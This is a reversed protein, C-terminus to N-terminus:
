SQRASADRRQRTDLEARISKVAQVADCYPVWMDMVVLEVKDRSPLLFLYDAVTKKNRDRLIGVLTNNQVDAVGTEEAIGSVTKKIASKGIWDVLRTTMARKEDM